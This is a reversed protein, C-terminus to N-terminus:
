ETSQNSKNQHAPVYDTNEASARSHASLPGQIHGLGNTAYLAFTGNQLHALGPWVSQKDAVLTRGDVDFVVPLSSNRLDLRGRMLKVEANVVWNPGVTGVDEDTMFIVFITGDVDALIQPAGANRGKAHAPPTFVM